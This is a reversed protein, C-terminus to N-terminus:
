KFPLSLDGDELDSRLHGCHGPSAVSLGPVLLEMRTGWTPPLPGLAQTMKVHKGLHTLLSAFLQSPLWNQSELQCESEHHWCSLQLLQELASGEGQTKLLARPPSGDLCKIQIVRDKALHFHVFENLFSCTNHLYLEAWISLTIHLTWSWGTRQLHLVSPSSPKM